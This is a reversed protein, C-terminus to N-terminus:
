KNIEKSKESSKTENKKQQYKMFHKKRVRSGEDWYNDHSYGHYEHGFSLCNEVTIYPKVKGCAEDIECCFSHGDVSFFPVFNNRRATALMWAVKGFRSGMHGVFAHGHSLLWLDAVATEGLFPQNAENEEAEISDATYNFHDRTYNLFHWKEVGYFNDDFTM